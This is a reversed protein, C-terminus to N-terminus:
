SFNKVWKRVSIFIEDFGGIQSIVKRNDEQLLWEAFKHQTNTLPPLNAQKVWELYDQSFVAPLVINDVIAAETGTEVKQEKNEM